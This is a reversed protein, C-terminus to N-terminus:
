VCRTLYAGELIQATQMRQAKTSLGKSTNSCNRFYCNQTTRNLRFLQTLFMSAYRNCQSSTLYYFTPTTRTHMSRCHCHAIEEVINRSPQLISTSHSSFIPM